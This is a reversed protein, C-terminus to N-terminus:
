GLPRLKKTQYVTHLVSYIVILFIIMGMGIAILSGIKISNLAPFSANVFKPMFSSLNIQWFDQGFIGTIIHIFACLYETETVGFQGVNTQLVGTNYEM